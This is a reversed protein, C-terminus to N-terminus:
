MGTSDIITVITSRNGISLSSKTSNLTLEFIFEEKNEVVSDPLVTVNACVVDGDSAGASFLLPVNLM